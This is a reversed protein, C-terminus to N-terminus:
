RAPDITIPYSSSFVTSGDKPSQEDVTLTVTTPESPAFSVDVAFPNWGQSGQATVPGRAFVEDASDSLEYTFTAEFLDRALGTMTFTAGVTEGLAPRQVFLKPLVGTDLWDDAAIPQDLEIGESSFTQVENGDLLLRVDAVREFQTATFTLQALRAFMTASGGGSAFEGSVDVVATNGDMRVGRLDTDEPVASSLAHSPQLAEPGEFLATLADALDHGGPVWVATLSPQSAGAPAYLFYATVGDQGAAVAPLEASPIDSAPTPTTPSSSPPTPDATTTTTATGGCATVVLAVLLTTAALSAPRM